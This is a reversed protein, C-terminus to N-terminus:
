PCQANQRCTEQMEEPAQDCMDCARKKAAEVDFSEVAEKMEATDDAFEINSPLSFMSSSAVWPKCDFEMEKNMDTPQASQGANKPKVGNLEDINLKTGKETMSNWTYAWEGDSIMHFEYGEIASMLIDIRFKKGSIYVTESLTNDKEIKDEFTCKLSKGSLLLKSITSKMIGGTNQEGETLSPKNTENTAQNGTGQVLSGNNVTLGEQKPSSIKGCGAIVVLCIILGIFLYKMAM